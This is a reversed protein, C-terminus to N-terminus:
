FYYRLIFTHAFRRDRENNFAVALIVHYECTLNCIMKVKFLPTMDNQDKIDLKIGPINVLVELSEKCGKSAAYHLGTRFM